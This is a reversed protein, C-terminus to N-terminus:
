AADSVQQGQQGKPELLAGSELNLAACLRLYTCPGVDRVGRELRSLHNSDIGVLAALEVQTYGLARRRDQLQSGIIQHDRM